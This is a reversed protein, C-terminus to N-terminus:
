FVVGTELLARVQSPRNGATGFASSYDYARVYSVEPRVFFTKFNFTPTITLTLADSGPGYLFNPAGKSAIYEGRAALNFFDSFKYDVLLAGSATSGKAVGLRPIDPVRTFQLYPAITWKGASHTFYVNYIESNNLELPTNSDTHGSNSLQAGFGAALTNGGGLNYSALASVWSFKKSYFGDNLSVSLSFPGQSFNAQVGRNVVNENWWLLGREVNLNQYTYGYEAGIITPLKGIQINFNDTPAIKVFAQPIIGFNAEVTDGMETYPFGVTPFSYGGAQVFFQVPGSTTQLNVHVNSADIKAKDDGAVHHGTVYGLGTAAGTVYIDGLPSGEFKFPEPNAPIGASMAPTGLPDAHAVGAAGFALAVAAGLLQSKKM